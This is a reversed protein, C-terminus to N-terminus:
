LCFTFYLIQELQSEFGPNGASFVLVMSSTGGCISTQGLTPSGISKVRHEDSGHQGSCWELQTTPDPNSIIDIM